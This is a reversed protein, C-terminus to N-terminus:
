FVSSKPETLKGEHEIIEFLLEAAMSGQKYPFQEISALPRSDIYNAIPWNAYSVFSIDKNITLNNKKACVIADLAVRDNFAIVATPRQRLRLLHDMAAFTSKQSLDSQTIYSKNLSLNNKNLG